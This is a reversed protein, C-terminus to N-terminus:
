KKFIGGFTNKKGTSIESQVTNIFQQLMEKQDSICQYLTDLRTNIETLVDMIDGINGIDHDQEAPAESPVGTESAISEQSSLEAKVSIETRKLTNSDDDRSLPRWGSKYHTNGYFDEM